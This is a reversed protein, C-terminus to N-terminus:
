NIRVKALEESSIEGDKDKDFLAFTSRLSVVSPFLCVFCPLPPNSTGYDLKHHFCRLQDRDRTAMRRYYQTNWPFTLMIRFVCNRSDWTKAGLRGWPIASAALPKSELDVAQCNGFPVCNVFSPGVQIPFLFNCVKPTKRIRMVAGTTAECPTIGHRAERLLLRCWLAVLLLTAAEEKEAEHIIKMM